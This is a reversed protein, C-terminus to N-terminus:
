SLSSLSREAIAGQEAVLLSDARVDLDVPATVGDLKLTKSSGDPAVVFLSNANTLAAVIRGDDLM